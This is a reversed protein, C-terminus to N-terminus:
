ARYSDLLFFLRLEHRTEGSHAVLPRLRRETKTTRVKNRQDGKAEPVGHQSM